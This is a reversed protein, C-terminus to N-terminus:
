SLVLIDKGGFANITQQDLQEAEMVETYDGLIEGTDKDYFTKVLTQKPKSKIGLDMTSYNGSEVEEKIRVLVLDVNPKKKIVENYKVKFWNSINKVFDVIAVSIKKLKGWIEKLFNLIEKFM